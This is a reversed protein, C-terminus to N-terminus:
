WPPPLPQVVWKTIHAGPNLPGCHYCKYGERTAEFTIWFNALQAATNYVIGARDTIAAAPAAAWMVGINWGLINKDGFVWTFVRVAQKQGIKAVRIIEDDSFNHAVAGHQGINRSKLEEKSFQDRFTNLAACGGPGHPNEPYVGNAYNVAM